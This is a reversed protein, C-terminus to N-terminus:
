RSGEGISNVGMTGGLGAEQKGAPCWGAVEFVSGGMSWVGSRAELGGSRQSPMGHGGMGSQARLIRAWDGLGTLTRGLM